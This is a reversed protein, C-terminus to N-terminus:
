DSVISVGQNKSRGIGPLIAVAAGFSFEFTNIALTTDRIAYLM